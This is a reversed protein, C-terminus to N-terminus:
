LLFKVTRNYYRYNLLSSYNITQPKNLVPSLIYLLLRYQEQRVLDWNNRLVLTCSPAEELPNSETILFLEPIIEKLKQLTRCLTSHSFSALGFHKRAKAAVSRMSMNSSLYLAVAYLYVYVPHKRYPLKSAPWLVINKHQPHKLMPCELQLERNNIYLKYTITRRRKLGGSSLKELTEASFTCRYDNNQINIKELTLSVIM